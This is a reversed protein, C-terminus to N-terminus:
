LSEGDRCHSSREATGEFEQYLIAVGVRSFSVLLTVLILIHYTGTVILIQCWLAQWTYLIRDSYIYHPKM